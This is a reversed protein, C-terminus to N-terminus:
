CIESGKHNGEIGRLIEKEDEGNLIILKIRSREVIKLASLDFLDYKGPEQKNKLIISEFEKYSLKRIKKANKDTRPDSTYVGDVNTAKILLDAKVAEAFLAGDFDTSHGPEIGGCVIIKEKPINEIEEINEVVNQYADEGLASILTLANLHTAVIGIRDLFTLSPNFSKAVNQYERCVKGGGCIVILRECKEKIKRLVRAYKEFNKKNLEKTLLSGGLILVVKM